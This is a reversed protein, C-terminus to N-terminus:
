FGHFKELDEKMQKLQNERLRDVLPMMRREHIKERFARTLESAVHNIVEQVNVASVMLENSVTMGFTWMDNHKPEHNVGVAIHDAVNPRLGMRSELAKRTNFLQMELDNNTKQLKQMETQLESEVQKRVEVEHKKLEEALEKAFFKHISM